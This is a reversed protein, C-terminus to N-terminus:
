IAALSNPNHMVCVTTVAFGVKLSMNLIGSVYLIPRHRMVTHRKFYFIGDPDLAENILM